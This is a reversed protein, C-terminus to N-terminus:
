NLPFDNGSTLQAPSVLVNVQTQGKTTSARTSKIRLLKGLIPSYKMVYQKLEGVTLKGDQPWKDANFYRGKKELGKLM